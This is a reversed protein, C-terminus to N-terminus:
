LDGRTTLAINLMLTLPAHFELPSGAPSLFSGSTLLLWSMDFRVSFYENLFGRLGFGPAGGVAFRQGRGRPEEETKEGGELRAVVLYASLYVEGYIKGGNLFALKGYLPKFLAGLKGFFKVSIFKEPPQGFNNELKDRLSTTYNFLWAFQGELAWIDSLHFSYGGNLAVAKTYPDVPLHGVGVGFEHNLRFKRNQVAPLKDTEEWPQTDDDKDKDDAGRAPGTPLLLMLLLLPAIAFRTLKSNSRIM